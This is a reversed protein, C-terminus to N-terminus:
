KCWFEYGDLFPWGCMVSRAARPRGAGSLTRMVIASPSQYRPAVLSPQQLYDPPASFSRLLTAAPSAADSANFFYSLYQDVEHLQIHGKGLTDLSTDAEVSTLSKLLAYTFLGNGQSRTSRDKWVFTIQERAVQGAKSGFILATDPARSAFEHELRAPDFFEGDAALMPTRCADFIAIKEGPLRQLAEVVTEGLLSRDFISAGGSTVDPFLLATRNKGDRLDVYGHGAFFFLFRHEFAPARTAAEGWSRLIRLLDDRSAAAVRVNPKKALEALEAAKENNSPSVLLDFEAEDFDAARGNAGSAMRAAADAILLESFDIADNDTAELNLALDNYNAVGVLMAHLMKPKPRSPAGTYSILHCGKPWDDLAFCVHKEGPTKRMEDPLDVTLQLRGTAAIQIPQYSTQSANGLGSKLPAGSGSRVYLRRTSAHGGVINLELTLKSDNVIARHAPRVVVIRTPDIRDRILAQLKEIAEEPKGTATLAQQV